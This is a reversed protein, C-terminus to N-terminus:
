PLPRWRTVSGLGMTSGNKLLITFLPFEGEGNAVVDMDVEGPHISGDTTMVEVSRGADTWTFQDTRWTDPTIVM